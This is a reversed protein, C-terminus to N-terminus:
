GCNDGEHLRRADARAALRVLAAMNELNLKRLIGARYTDVTKASIALSVAIDRPRVGSGLQRFIEYERESLVTRPDIPACGDESLNLLPSIYSQGATIRTIADLLQAAPGDKLLYGAAGASLISRIFSPEWSSSHAIIRTPPNAASLSLMLEEFRLPTIAPDLLVFGPRFNRIADLLQDSNECEAVVRFGPQADCFSRVGARLVPHPDAIAITIEMVSQKDRVV